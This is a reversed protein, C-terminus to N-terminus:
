SDGYSRGNGFPLHTVDPDDSLPLPASASILRVASQSPRSVRGWSQYDFFNM